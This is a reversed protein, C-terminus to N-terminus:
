FIYLLDKFYIKFNKNMEIFIAEFLIIKIAILSKKEMKNM